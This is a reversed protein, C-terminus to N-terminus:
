LYLSFTSCAPSLRAHAPTSSQRPPAAGLLLHLLGQLWAPPRALSLWAPALSTRLAPEHPALHEVTLLLTLPPPPLFGRWLLPICTNEWYLARGSHICPPTRQSPQGLPLRQRGLIRLLPKERISSCSPAPDRGRCSGLPQLCGEM